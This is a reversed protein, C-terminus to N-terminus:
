ITFALHRVVRRGLDVDGEIIVSGGALVRDPDVRGCALRAFTLVPMRLRTTAQADLHEVVRARGDVMVNVTRETAGDLDLTVSSGEPAGARKGIVYGLAGVMEDLSREVAPGRHHGPCGVAERIDQEHVWTDFVRIEMFRGYTGPGVPTWSEAAFDEDGMAELQARREATVQRWAALLEEPPRGRFRQVWAENVRGMDNRVHPGPPDELPPTSRGTLMSETGILHAVQDAVAWGPCATPLDWDGTGLGSLLRDLSEWTETLQAVVDRRDAVVM